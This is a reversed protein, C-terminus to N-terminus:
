NGAGRETDAIPRRGQMVDKGEVAALAIDHEPGLATNQEVSQLQCM